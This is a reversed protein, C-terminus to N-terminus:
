PADPVSAPEEAHVAERYLQAILVGFPLAVLAQALQSVLALLLASVSLPEPQGALLLVVSGLAATSAWSAVVLLLLFLLSLGYLKLTAGRTLRWSRSLMSIPGKGEVGAAPFALMFRAVPILVLLMILLIAGASTAQAQEDGSLLGPVFPFILLSLALSLLITAALVRFAPALSRRVAEGVREGGVLCLRQVVTVGVYTLSVTVLMLPLLLASGETAAPPTPMVTGMLTGPLVGFALVVPLLLRLDRRLVARTADWARGISLKTM